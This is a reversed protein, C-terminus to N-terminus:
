GLISFRRRAKPEPVGALRSALATLQRGLHSGPPLLRGEAYADYLATYDNPLSASVPLGLMREIEECTIESSKPVRNLVLQLREGAYGREVLARSIHKAHYLAPVDLTTVLFATDRGGLAELVPPNLGRGLDAIVWDYHGKVFRLLRALREGDSDSHAGALPARVVELGPTGDAVLAKWYSLDMRDLNELADVVSYPSRSKMVFGVIGTQLDFDALLVAQGTQRQVELALHCAVTSAGCGGKASFFAFCRARDSAAVRHPAREAAIREIAAALSAGLPPSLYEAAGARLAKLIMEPAPDEHVAIVAPGGPVRRIRRVLDDWSGVGPQVQLIVIDPRLRALREALAEPDGAEPLEAVV